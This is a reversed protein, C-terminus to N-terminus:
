RSQPGGGFWRQHLIPILFHCSLHLATLGGLLALSHRSMAFALYLIWSVGAIGSPGHGTKGRRLWLVLSALDLLVGLIAGVLAATGVITTAASV